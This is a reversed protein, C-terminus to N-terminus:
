KKKYTLQFYIFLIGFIILCCGLSVNFGSFDITQGWQRNYYIPKLIVKVGLLICVSGFLIKFISDIM